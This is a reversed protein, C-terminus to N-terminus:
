VTEECTKKPYLQAAMGGKCTLFIDHNRGGLIYIWMGRGLYRRTITPLTHQNKSDMTKQLKNTTTRMTLHHLPCQYGSPVLPAKKLLLCQHRSLEAAKKGGGKDRTKEYEASEIYKTKVELSSHTCTAKPLRWKQTRGYGNNLVSTTTEQQLALHQRRTKVHIKM